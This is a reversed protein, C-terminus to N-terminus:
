IGVPDTNRLPLGASAPRASRRMGDPATRRSRLLRAGSWAMAMGSLACLAIGVGPGYAAVSALNMLPGRGTQLYGPAATGYFVPYVAAGLVFWGGAGFALLGGVRQMGGALLRAGFLILLGGVVAAAGPILSLVTHATSWHWASDGMPGIGIKPGFYAAAGGWAGVLMVLMGALASRGAPRPEAMVAPGAVPAAATRGGMHEAEPGPAMADTGAGVPQHVSTLDDPAEYGGMTTDYGEDM